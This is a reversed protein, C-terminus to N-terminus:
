IMIATFVVVDLGEPHHGQSISHTADCQRQVSLMLCLPSTSGRQKSHFQKKSPATQMLATQLIIKETGVPNKETYRLSLHYM